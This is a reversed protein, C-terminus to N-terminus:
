KPRAAHRDSESQVSYDSLIERLRTAGRLIHSKVTGLPTETMSAIEEHTMGDHYALVVCLRTAPSLRALAADLDIKGSFSPGHTPVTDPDVEEELDIRSGRVEELWTTVMIRKLWENFAASTRLQGISRWAKLFVQQALDDGDNPHRCLRYMFNRVQSQRRKVVENFAMVDGQILVRITEHRMSEVHKSGWIGAILFAALAIWFAATAMGDVEM